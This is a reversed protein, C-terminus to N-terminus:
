LKAELYAGLRERVALRARHLRTKVAPVSLDLAEAIDRMTMHEYDAMCLVVRYGDPLDDIARKLRRGLEADELRKNALPSWDVVPRKHHGDSKFGTQIELSVEPRRRKRRLRMLSANTAIRFLWGRFPSEQRFSDLKNFASLFTEQVVDQAEADNRLMGLAIGYVRDSYRRFLCEFAEYHGDLTAHVLVLDEEDGVISLPPAGMRAAQVM